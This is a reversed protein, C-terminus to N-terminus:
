PALMKALLANWYNFLEKACDDFSIQTGREDFIVNPGSHRGSGYGGGGYPISVIHTNAIHKMKTSPKAKGPGGISVHKSANTVDRIYGFRKDTAEVLHWFVGHSSITASFEAELKSRFDHFLWEHFHYLATALNLANAFTSPERFFAKKNPEVVRAFYEAACNLNTPTMMSAMM